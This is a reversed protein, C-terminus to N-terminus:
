HLTSLQASELTHVIPPRGACDFTLTVTAGPAFAAPEFLVDGSHIARSAGSGDSFTMPRLTSKVPAVPQGNRTLVVSQVDPADLRRASVAVEVTGTWVAQAVPRKTRLMDILSRRYSLYPPTLTILLQEDRVISLPFTEFDGWTERVRRDLAMVVTTADGHAERSAQRTMERVRDGTLQPQAAAPAPPSAILSLSVALLLLV